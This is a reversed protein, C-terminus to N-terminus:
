SHYTYAPSDRWCCWHSPCYISVFWNPRPDRVHRPFCIETRSIDLNIGRNTRSKSKSSTLVSRSHSVSFKQNTFGTSKLTLTLRRWLTLRYFDYVMWQAIFLSVHGSAKPAFLANYEDIWGKDNYAHWAVMYGWSFGGYTIQFLWSPKTKSDKPYAEEVDVIIYVDMTLQRHEFSGWLFEWLFGIVGRYLHRDNYSLLVATGSYGKAITRLGSRNVDWTWWSNVYKCM